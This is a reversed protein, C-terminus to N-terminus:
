VSKEKILQAVAEEVPHHTSDRNNALKSNKDFTSTVAQTRKELCNEEMDERNDSM